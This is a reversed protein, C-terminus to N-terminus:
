HQSSTTTLTPMFLSQHFDSQLVLMTSGWSTVMMGYTRSLRGDSRSRPFLYCLKKIQHNEVQIGIEKGETPVFRGLQDHMVSRVVPAEFNAHVWDEEVLVDDKEGKVQVYFCGNKENEEHDCVEYKLATVQDFMLLKTELKKHPQFKTWASRLEKAEAVSPISDNGPEGDRIVAANRKSDELLDKMDQRTNPIGVFKSLRQEAAKYDRRYAPYDDATRSGYREDIEESTLIANKPLLPHTRPKKHTHDLPPLGFKERTMDSENLSMKKVKEKAKRKKRGARDTSEDSTNYDSDNKETSGKRGQVAAPKRDLDGDKAMARLDKLKEQSLHLFHELNKGKRTSPPQNKKDSKDSSKPLSAAAPPKNLNLSDLSPLDKSKNDEAHKDADSMPVDEDELSSFSSEPTNNAGVLDDELGYRPATIGGDGIPKGPPKQSPDNEDDSDSIEIFDLGASKLGELTYKPPLKTPKASAKDHVKNFVKESHTIIPNTSNLLAKLESNQADGVFWVNM